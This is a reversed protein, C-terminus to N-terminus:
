GWFGPNDYHRVSSDALQLQMPTPTLETYNLQDFVAKPMVSVSAGLDCLAKDFNQAGISCRITPFGPDKKKEPLQQLIAASCAETLKIVETTPLPRKNNIIDKIYRAYTPVKIADMLPVNINVQQIIEVFRSSQEDTSPKRARMPFPLVQTDYFEHLATKGEHVKEERPPEEVVQSAKKRNVHNPYPPDQTTKGGRTTIAKVNELAPPM